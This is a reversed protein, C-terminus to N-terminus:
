QVGDPTKLSRENKYHNLGSEGIVGIIFLALAENFSFPVAMCYVIYTLAVIRSLSFFFARKGPKGNGDCYLFKLGSLHFGMRPFYRKPQENYAPLSKASERVRDATLQEKKLVKRTM